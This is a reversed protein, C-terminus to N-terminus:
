GYPNAGPSVMGRDCAGTVSRMIDLATGLALRSCATVACGCGARRCWLQNPVRFRCSPRKGARDVWGDGRYPRGRALSLHDISAAPDWAQHPGLPPVSLDPLMYWCSNGLMSWLGVAPPGQPGPALARRFRDGAPLLLSVCQRWRATGGSRQRLALGLYFLGRAEALGGPVLPATRWDPQRFHRDLFDVSPFASSLDQSRQSVFVSAAEDYYICRWGPDALLTAEAGFHEDHDLLVLPDDM